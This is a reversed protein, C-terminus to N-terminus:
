KKEFGLLDFPHPELGCKWTGTGFADSICVRALMALSAKDVDDPLNNLVMPSSFRFRLMCVSAIEASEDM